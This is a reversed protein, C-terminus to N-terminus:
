LITKNVNNINLIRTNFFLWVKIGFSSRKLKVSSQHYHIDAYITHTPMKGVLKFNHVVNHYAITKSMKAKKPPGSFEIRIGSIPNYKNSVNRNFIQSFFVINSLNNFNFFSFYKKNVLRDENISNIENFLPIFLRKTNVNARQQIYSIRKLIRTIKHKRKLNYVIYDSILKSDLNPFRNVYYTPLFFTDIGTYFHITQEIYKNFSFFLKKKLFFTVRKIFINYRNIKKFYVMDIADKKIRISNKISEKTFLSFDKLYFYSMFGYESNLSSYIFKNIKYNLYEKGKYSKRDYSKFGYLFYSKKNVSVTNSYSQSFNNSLRSYKLNMFYTEYIKSKKYLFYIKYFIGLFYYSSILNGRLKSFFFFYHYIFKIFNYLFFTITNRFLFTFNLNFFFFFNNKKNNLYVFYSVFFSKIKDFNLKLKTKLKLKNLLYSKDINFFNNLIRFSNNSIIQKNLANSSFYLIDQQSRDLLLKKYKFLFINNFYNYFFYISYFYSSLYFNNFYLFSYLSYFFSNMVLSNKKELLSGNIVFKEKSIRNPVLLSFDFLYELMSIYRFLSKNNLLLKSFKNFSPKTLYINSQIYYYNQNIRNLYFHTTPLRLRYFISNLYEILKYDKYVLFTYYEKDYWLSYWTGFIGIRLTNSNSVRRM